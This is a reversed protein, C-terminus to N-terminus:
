GGGAGLVVGVEAPQELVGDRDRRERDLRAHQVLAQVLVQQQGGREDVVEAADALQREAGLDPEAVLAPQEAM